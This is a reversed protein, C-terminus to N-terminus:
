TSFNVIVFTAWREMVKRGRQYQQLGGQDQRQCRAGPQGQDLLDFTSRLQTKTVGYVNGGGEFAQSL